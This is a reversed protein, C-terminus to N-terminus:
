MAAPVVMLKERQILSVEETEPKYGYTLAAYKSKAPSTTPNHEFLPEVARVVVGVSSCTFQEIPTGVVSPVPL